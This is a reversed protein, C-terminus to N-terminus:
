YIVDGLIPILIGPCEAGPILEQVGSEDMFNLNM